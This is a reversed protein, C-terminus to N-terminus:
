LEKRNRVRGDDNNCTRTTSIYEGILIFRHNMVLFIKNRVPVTEPTTSVSCEEKLHYVLQQSTPRKAPEQAWADTIIKAFSQPVDEPITLRDGRIVFVSIVTDQVGEYPDCGTALEWFVIGLAYVDSAETHNGKMELIEPATWPVTGVAAAPTSQRSTEHRIKALGFDGIKVLFGQASRTMLINPSKIDRHIIREPPTHLYHVGKTMQLAISWRDSWTLQIERGNLVDYLSGLSMYEVVLAYYDPEICAGYMNLVHEYRIRNMTSIEKFFDPKVREGLRQIRIVKIAVEHDQSLWRGRYVDAFGGYGICETQVLDYYPIRLFPYEPNVSKHAKSSSQAQVINQTLHHKYSSHRRDIHETIGHLHRLNERDQEVMMTAIEDPKIGKLDKEQDLQDQRQNFIMEFDIDLHLDTTCQLLQANLKKFQEKANPNNFVKLFWSKEGQFKAIFALCQETCISFSMLSKRLEPRQLDIDSISKLCSTIKEIREGLRKCQNENAKVKGTIEKITTVTDSILNRITSAEM